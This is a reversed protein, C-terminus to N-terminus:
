PCDSGVTRGPRLGRMRKGAGLAQNQREPTVVTGVNLRRQWGRFIRKLAENFELEDKVSGVAVRGAGARRIIM